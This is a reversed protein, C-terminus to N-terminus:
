AGEAKADPGDGRLLSRVQAIRTMVQTAHVDLAAAIESYSLGDLLRLAMAMQLDPGLDSWTQLVRVAHDDDALTPRAPAPAPGRSFEGSLRRARTVALNRMIRATWPLFPRGVQLQGIGRWARVGTDQVLQAADDHHRTLAFALRYLTRQYGRLLEFFSALDGRQASQVLGAEMGAEMWPGSAAREEM